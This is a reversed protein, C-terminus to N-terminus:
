ICQRYLLPIKLVVYPYIPKTLFTRHGQIYQPLKETSVHLARFHPGQVAIFISYLINLYPVIISLMYRYIIIYYDYDPNLVYTELPGPTFRPLKGHLYTYIRTVGLKACCAIM